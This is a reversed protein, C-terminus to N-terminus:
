PHLGEIALLGPPARLVKNHRVRVSDCRDRADVQRFGGLSPTQLDPRISTCIRTNSDHKDAIRGVLSQVGTVTLLYPSNTGPECPRRLAEVFQARIAQM